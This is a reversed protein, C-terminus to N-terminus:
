SKSSNKGIEAQRQKYFNQKYFFRTHKRYTKHFHQPFVIVFCRSNVYWIGNYINGYLEEDNYDSGDSDYYVDIDDGKEIDLHYMINFRSFMEPPSIKM